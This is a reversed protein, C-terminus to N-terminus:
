ANQDAKNNDYGLELPHSSTLDTDGEAGEEEENQSTIGSIYLIFTPPVAAKSPGRGAYQVTNIKESGYTPRPKTHLTPFGQANVRTKHCHEEVRTQFIGGLALGTEQTLQHYPFAIYQQGSSRECSSGSSTENSASMM